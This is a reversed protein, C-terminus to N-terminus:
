NAVDGLFRRIKDTKVGTANDYISIIRNERDISLEIEGEIRSNLIGEEVAIDIQDASNQIYERYIFRPDEYMGLTLTEIVNKGIHPKFVTSM